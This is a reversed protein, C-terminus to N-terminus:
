EWVCERPRMHNKVECKIMFEIKPNPCIVYKKLRILKLIVITGMSFWDHETYIFMLDEEENFMRSHFDYCVLM